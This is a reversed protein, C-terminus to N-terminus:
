YETVPYAPIQVPQINTPSNLSAQLHILGQGHGHAFHSEPEALNPDCIDSWVGQRM